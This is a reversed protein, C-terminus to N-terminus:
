NCPEDNNYTVQMAVMKEGMFYFELLANNNLDPTIDVETTYYFRQSFTASHDPENEKAADDMKAWADYGRIYYPISMAYIDRAADFYNSDPDTDGDATPSKRLVSFSYGASLAGILERASTKGSLTIAGLTMRLQPPIGIFNSIGVAGDQGVNFAAHEYQYYKWDPHTSCDGGILPYNTGINVPNGFAVALSDQTLPMAQNLDLIVPLSLRAPVPIAVLPEGKEPRDRLVWQRVALTQNEALRPAVKGYIVGDTIREFVRVTEADATSTLVKGVMKWGTKDQLYIAYYNYWEQDLGNSSRNERTFPLLADIRGDHNLDGFLIPRTPHVGRTFPLSLAYGEQRLRNEKDKNVAGLLTRVTEPPTNQPLFMPGYEAAIADATFLLLAALVTKKM